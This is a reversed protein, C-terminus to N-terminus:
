AKEAIARLMYDRDGKWRFKEIECVKFGIRELMKRLKKDSYGNKHYQGFGNQSGYFTAMIYGWRNEYGYSYTGFWHNAAIASESDDYFDQWDDEAQLWAKCAEEFDPVSLRFRGGVRLVRYMEYLFRPEDKFSLHELLGDALIEDVSNDNYPLSFIDEDKIILDDSFVQGPYRIRLDDISDQDINIYDPLPRGGCGINLKM